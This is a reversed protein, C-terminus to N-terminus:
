KDPKDDDIRVDITNTEVLVKQNRANIFWSVARVRYVGEPLRVSEKKNNVNHFPGVGPLNRSGLLRRKQEATLSDLTTAVLCRVTATDGPKLPTIPLSPVPPTWVWQGFSFLWAAPSPKGAGLLGIDKKSVNKVRIEFEIPEGPKVTTTLARLNAVLGDTEKGWAIKEKVASDKVENAQEPSANPEAEVSGDSTQIVAVGSVAIPLLSLMLLSYLTAKM